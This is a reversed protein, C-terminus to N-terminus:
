KGSSLHGGERHINIIYMNLVVLRAEPRGTAELAEKLVEKGKSGGLVVM